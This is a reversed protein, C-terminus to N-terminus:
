KHIYIIDIMKMKKEKLQNILNKYQEIQKTQINIIIKYENIKNELNKIYNKDKNYYKNDDNDNDDYLKQKKNLTQNIYSNDELIFENRRKKDM